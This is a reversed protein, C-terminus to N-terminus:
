IQESGCHPCWKTGKVLTSSCIQCKVTAVGGIMVEVESSEPQPAAANQSWSRIRRDLEEQRKRERDLERQQREEEEPDVPEVAETPQAAPERPETKERVLSAALVLTDMENIAVPEMVPPESSVAAERTVPPQVPEPAPKLLEAPVSPKAKMLKHGCYQCFLADEAVNRGCAGCLRENKLEAIKLRIEDREETLLDCTKALELMEKEANAMDKNRYAEYFVEGMKQFYLGLEREINSIQTNLKGIEVVNQARDTVKGAGDKLRQLFNM